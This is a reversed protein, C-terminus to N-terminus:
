GITSFDEDDPILAKAITDVTHQSVLEKHQKPDAMILDCYPGFHHDFLEVAHTYDQSMMGESFEQLKAKNWGLQKGLRLGTGILCFVNGEPGTLDIQLRTRKEKGIIAM